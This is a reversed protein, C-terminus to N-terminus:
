KYFKDHVLESFTAMISNLDVHDVVIVKVNVNDAM